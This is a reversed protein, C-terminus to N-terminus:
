ARGGAAAQPARELALDARELDGPGLAALEDLMHVGLTGPGGSRARARDAALAFAAHAAVTGPWPDSAAICAAVLAGLACGSGTILALWPHGGGVWVAREGDTVLDREGSVAVVARRSLALSVAAELAADSSDGSDVGRAGGGAGALALIESANGRIAGLRTGQLLRVIRASRYETAGMGVPDLVAPRGLENIARTAAELSAPQTEHLGTNLLLADAVRAMRGVEHPNDAMVPSAGAALLTDAVRQPTVRNTVCLVLPRAERMARWAGMVGARLESLAAEM